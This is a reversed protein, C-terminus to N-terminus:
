SLTVSPPVISDSEPTSGPDVPRNLALAPLSTFIPPPLTPPDKWALVPLSILILPPLTPECKSALEPLM